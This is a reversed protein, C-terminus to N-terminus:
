VIIKFKLMGAITVIKLIGHVGRGETEEERNM